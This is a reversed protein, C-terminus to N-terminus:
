RLSRALTTLSARRYLTLYAEVRPWALSRIRLRDNPLKKRLDVFYLFDALAKEPTAMLVTEVGIKVPQYGTFAQRKIRHYEFTTSVADLTRTPRPTASTVAYVTEPILHHFALASEFSVYSPAYLRNAIALATPKTIALCYLGNRLKIVAGRRSYRHLLFSVAVASVRLVGQLELPSFLRLGRQTLTRELNIWNM